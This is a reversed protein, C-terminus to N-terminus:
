KWTDALLLAREHFTLFSARPHSKSKIDAEPPTDAQTYTQVTFAKVFISM